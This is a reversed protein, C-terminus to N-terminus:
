GPGGWKDRRRRDWRSKDGDGMSGVFVPSDAYDAVFEPRPRDTMDMGGERFQRTKATRDKTAIAVIDEDIEMGTEIDSAMLGLAAAQVIDDKAGKAKPYKRVGSDSTVEPVLLFEKIMREDDFIELRQEQFAVIINRMLENKTKSTYTWPYINYPMNHFYRDYTDGSQGTNDVLVLQCDWHFLIDDIQEVIAPYGGDPSTPFHKLYVQSRFKGICEYIVLATHDQKEGLDIGACYITGSEPEQSRDDITAAMEVLERDFAFGEETNFKCEFEAEFDKKAMSGKKELVYEIDIITSEKWTQYVVKAKSEPLTNDFLHGRGKPTGAEWTQTKKALEQLAKEQDKMPMRQIRRRDKAGMNKMAAGSGHIDAHYKTDGIDQSEDVVIKTPSSGRINADSSATNIEMVNGNRMTIIGEEAIGKLGGKIRNLIWPHSTMMEKVRVFIVRKAQRRTPSYVLILENKGFLLTWVILICLVTTKGTQRSFIAVTHRNKLCSEAFDEQKPDLIKDFFFEAFFAFDVKCRNIVRQTRPVAASAAFVLLVLSLFGLIIM